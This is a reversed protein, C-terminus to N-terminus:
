TIHMHFNLFKTKSIEKQNKKKRSQVQDFGRSLNM